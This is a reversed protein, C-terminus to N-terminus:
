NTDITNYTEKVLDGLQEGIMMSAAYTHGAILSPFVSADAIRLNKFGFLKLESDVVAGKKPDTGMPCTGVPHYITTTVQRLACYWYGESLYKHQSCARLPGGRLTANMAKFYKTDLFRLVLEVGEFLINIDKNEGDSLFNTNIIPYDYPNTSKLRITGVSQPDTNVVYFRLTLKSDLDQNLDEYTQENFGYSRQAVPSSYNGTTVLVEINPIGTGKSYRSEYAGMGQFGDPDALVGGGKLYEGVSERLSQGAESCNTGVVIGFFTPHDRLVSGVELNRLVEVGLDELHEKPGVGSLMLIQPTGFAGASLVVEKTAEVFYNGGKQNFEVGTAVGKAADFRVKTVYSETLIQLNQRHRVPELFAKANDFRKGEHTCRQGAGAGLKNANIDVVDFGLEQNAELFAHFQLTKPQQYTVIVPGTTGHVDPDYGTDRNEHIFTESKKFYHLVTTYNWRQNQTITAWQHFNSKHGRAYFLGNILTSGGLGKGRPLLCVKNTMGQCATTQPTSNFAWNYHTFQTQPFMAPIDTLNNGHTGAELLLVNWNPIESLRNAVASGAAGGGVVVFDFTGYKKIQEDSFHENANKPWEYTLANKNASNIWNVYYDIKTTSPYAQVFILNLLVLSSIKM